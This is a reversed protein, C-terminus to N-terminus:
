DSSSTTDKTAQRQIGLAKNKKDERLQEDVKKGEAKLRNDDARNLEVQPMLFFALIFAVTALGAGALFIVRFADRYAENIHQRVHEPSAGERIHVAQVMMDPQDVLHALERGKIGSHSLAIRLSNNIVTGGVALGLTSGLNRIFSLLILQHKPIQLPTRV